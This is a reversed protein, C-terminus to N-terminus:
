ENLPETRATFIDAALILDIKPEPDWDYALM